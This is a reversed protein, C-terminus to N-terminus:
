CGYKEGSMQHCDQIAMIKYTIVIYLNFLSKARMSLLNIKMSQHVVESLTKNQNKGLRKKKNTKSITMHCLESIFSLSLFFTNELVNLILYCLNGFVCEICTCIPIQIQLIRMSMCHAAGVISNADIEPRGVPDSSDCDM